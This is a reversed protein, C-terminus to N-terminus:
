VLEAHSQVNTNSSEDTWNIAFYLVSFATQNLWCGGGEGEQDVMIVIIQSCNVKVKM